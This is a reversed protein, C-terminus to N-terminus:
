EASRRAFAMIWNVEWAAGDDTSFAQEWRPAGSDIDSWRYRVRVPRGGETDDGSFEGAGHAFGGHVPPYLRCLVNDAWYISWLGTEPDFLRYSSGEFGEHGPWQPRFTDVNGIGGLIPWCTVVAPFREWEDSGALRNLLRENTVHWTGHFFDFDRAGARATRTAV